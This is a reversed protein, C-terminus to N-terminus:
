IKRWENELAFLLDRLRDMQSVPFEDFSLKPTYGEPLRDPIWLQLNDHLAVEDPSPHERHQQRLYQLIRLGDAKQHFAREFHEFDTVNQRISDWLHEENFQKQLFVLFDTEVDELYLQPLLRYTEAISEFHTHHYVPYSEWDGNRGKAVAPGTGFPVRDSLRASPYVPVENYLGIPAMKRFKQLLYFDEGSQVPTIGGIKRLAVARMVIASGLATFSYPSGIHLLNLAYNRMYLEYRLIARDQHEVGTLPHYYPVALAPCEPHRAMTAAVSQLYHPLIHTDADLSVILDDDAATQLISDFLTKRAWGVGQRRPPWGQGRSTRDLVHLDLGSFSHLYQLTQRNRDCIGRKEPIDWYSDPQNICLHVEFPPVGEQSALDRLTLPLSEWEDMAPIAVFIRGAKM